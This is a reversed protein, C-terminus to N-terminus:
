TKQALFLSAPVDIVIGLEDDEEELKTKGKQQKGKGQMKNNKLAHKGKKESSGATKMSKNVHEELEQLLSNDLLDLQVDVDEGSWDVHPSKERILLVAAHQMYAPLNQLNELLTQKDEFSFLKEPLSQKPAVATSAATAKPTSAAASKPTSAAAGKPTSAAAVKPTSAAAVKPTSAAVGKPTSAAASKPTSAAAGKATSAIVSKSTSAAVTMPTSIATSKVASGTDTKRSSTGVSKSTSLPTSKSASKNWEKEFLKLMRKAAAHVEHGPPNFLMANDFTLKVDNIFDAPLYEYKRKELKGKITGLDMPHKIVTPYEPIDLAVPDVPENFLWAHKFEMLIQLVAKCRSIIVEIGTEDEEEDKDEISGRNEPDEGGDDSEAKGVDEEEINGADGSIEPAGAEGESVDERPRSRKGRAM